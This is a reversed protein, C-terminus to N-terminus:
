PPQEAADIGFLQFKPPTNLHQPSSEKGLEVRLIHQNRYFSEESIHVLLM